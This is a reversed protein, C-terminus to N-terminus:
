RRHATAIGTDIGDFSFDEIGEPIIAVERSDKDPKRFSCGKKDDVQAMIEERTKNTLYRVVRNEAVAMNIAEQTTNIPDYKSKVEEEAVKTTTSVRPEKLENLEIGGWVFKRM